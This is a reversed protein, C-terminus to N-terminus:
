VSPSLRLYGRLESFLHRESRLTAAVVLLAYVALEALARAPSGSPAAARGALILLLAPVTPAVAGAVHRALPIPGFFRRLYYRRNALTVLEMVLFGAALGDLGWILMGPLPAALFALLAVATSWALPRTDGRARYFADWNFGIQHIGAMLGTAQLLAIAPRWEEGLVHIAFPEAFLALGVGFPIGWLVALRNSKWFSELLLDTRDKVACLAPYLTSTVVQDVRNAYLSVTASLAVFGAGALGLQAEAPLMLAHGMGTGALAAVVYPWSFATYRRAAKSDWRLRMPYPSAILAAAAACWAGALLGVVAAWYGAGAVALAATVLFSVLPDIAQLMRQRRFDLRRYFIALPAQLAM